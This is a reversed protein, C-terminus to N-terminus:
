GLAVSDNWVTMPQCQSDNRLSECVLIAIIATVQKVTGDTALTLGANEVM